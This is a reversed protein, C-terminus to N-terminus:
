PEELIAGKKSLANRLEIVDIDTPRKKQHVAIAVATGAAEGMAMCQAMSRVSSHAVHDASFCRGAVILNSSGEPILSRYPIGACRGEPLYQWKTGEGDHHDEIPAGCLGIQDEFQKTQLVDAATLRYHGYIRRTERVGIQSSFTSLQANEYGPVYDRLFRVYELAQLRGEMELRSLLEPNTANITTDGQKDYSKLRTMVTATMHDIPTIHDSGEKRPLNYKGTDSARITLEHIAQKSVSKRRPIDVNVMKFTTTLTQAPDISGALEFPFGAQFVLDADGTTDVFQKARYIRLGAKTAVVLGKIENGEKIVGQAWANLLIHCGSQKVLDEWVVKLYESHYTIGAGAGYSNPREFCMGFNKLEQVIEDAIGGVVKKSEKGPTYFGYFTDLVTTSTGGLFSLREILLVELGSRGAAIAATSGASGSGVVIIDFSGAEPLSTNYQYM